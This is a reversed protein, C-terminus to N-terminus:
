YREIKYFRSGASAIREFHSWMGGDGLIFVRDESEGPCNVSDCRQITYTQGHDTAFRLEIADFLSHQVIAGNPEDLSVRYSAHALPRGRHFFSTAAGEALRYGLTVWAGTNPAHQEIRYVKGADTPFQIEAASHADAAIPPFLFPAFNIVFGEPTLAANSFRLEDIFGDFNRDEITYHPTQRAFAGVYIPGTGWAIPPSNPQSGSMTSFGDIYVRLDNFAGATYVIAIHHWNGDRLDQSVLFTEVRDPGYSLTFIVWGTAPQYHFAWATGLRTQENTNQKALITYSLNTNVYALFPGAVNTGGGFTQHFLHPKIFFEITWDGAPAFDPHHPIIAYDNRGRADLAAGTVGPFPPVDTTLEFPEQGLVRGHHGNGSSDTLEFLPSDPSSAEFKYHAITAANLSFGTLLLFLVLSKMPLIIALNVGSM